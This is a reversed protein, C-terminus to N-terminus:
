RRQPDLIPNMEIQVAGFERPDGFKEVERAIQVDSPCYYQYIYKVVFRPILAAMVIALLCLWFAGTQAVEFFARCINSKCM